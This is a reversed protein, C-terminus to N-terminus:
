IQSGGPLALRHQAGARWSRRIWGCLANGRSRWPIGVRGLRPDSSPSPAPTISPDITQFDYAGNCHRVLFTPTPYYGEYDSAYNPAMIGLGILLDPCSTSGSQPYVPMNNYAALSTRFWPAWSPESITPWILSSPRNLGTSLFIMSTAQARWGRLSCRARAMSIPCAPSAEFDVAPPLFLPARTLGTSCRWSPNAGDTRVVIADYISAYLKGGCAAFSMVRYATATTVNASGAEATAGWQIANTTSNFGGSYIGYPDSGAFAMEEGTVSDTYAAFSRFRAAAQPGPPVIANITWTGQAGVSGTTVTKQGLSLGDTNLNWFGAMLVDVPTIANKNMDHDFHATGLMAVAQFMAKGKNNVAAQIYNQDQVWAGTPSDLRLIQSPLTPPTNIQPDQPDGIGAYLSGDMFVLARTETGGFPVIAPDNFTVPLSQNWTFQAGPERDGANNADYIRRQRHLRHQVHHNCDALRRSIGLRGIALFRNRQLFDRQDVVMVADVLRRPRHRQPQRQVLTDAGNTIRARSRESLGVRYPQRQLRGGLIYGRRHESSRRHGRGPQWVGRLRDRAHGADPNPLRLAHRCGRGDRWDHPIPERGSGSISNDIRWERHLHHQLRHNCDALRLSIRLRGISLLRSRHLFDRQDVVMFADVLRRPPRECSERQVLSAAGNAIRGRCRESLGVRYPRRQLSGGVM